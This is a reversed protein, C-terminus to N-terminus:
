EPYAQIFHLMKMWMHFKLHQFKGKYRTLGTNKVICVQLHNESVFMLVRSALCLFTFRLSRILMTDVLILCFYNLILPATNPITKSRLLGEFM